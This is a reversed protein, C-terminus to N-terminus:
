APMTGSHERNGRAGLSVWQGRLGEKVDDAVAKRNDRGRLHPMRRSARCTAPFTPSGRQIATQVLAPGPSVALLKIGDFAWGTKAPGVISVSVRRDQKQGTTYRYCLHNQDM